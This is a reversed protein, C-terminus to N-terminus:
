CVTLLSQTLTKTKTNYNNLGTVYNYVSNVDDLMELKGKYSYTEYRASM